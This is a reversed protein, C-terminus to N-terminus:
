AMVWVDASSICPKVPRGFQNETKWGLKEPSADYLYTSERGKVTIHGDDSVTVIAYLPDVSFCCNRVMRASDIFEQPFLTNERPQWEINLSANVDMWLINDSIALNDRHYHGNCCMLVRGPHAANAKNLIARVRDADPSGVTTEFSAHAFILCPYPSENVAKDLWALQADGVYDSDPYGHTRPSAHVLEGEANRYFNTDLLILRFGKVDRYVYTNEMGMVAMVDEIADADEQEHNGFCNYVPLGYPNNFYAAKLEDNTPINHCLDGCSMVFDVGAENAAAMIEELKDISQPYHTPWYHFDSFLCFTVTNM